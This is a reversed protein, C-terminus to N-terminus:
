SADGGHHLRQRLVPHRGLLNEVLHARQAPGVRGRV